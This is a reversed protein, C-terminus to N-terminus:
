KEKGGLANWAESLLTAIIVWAYYVTPPLLIAWLGAAIITPWTRAAIMSLAAVFIGAIIHIVMPQLHKLISQDELFRVVIYSIAGLIIPIIMWNSPWILDM